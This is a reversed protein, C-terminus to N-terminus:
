KVQSKRRKLMLFAAVVVIFIAIVIGLLVELSLFSSSAEVLAVIGYVKVNDDTFVEGPVPTVVVKLEDQGKSLQFTDWYFSITKTENVDLYISSNVYIALLGYFVKLEATESFSGKNKITVEINVKSGIAIQNAIIDSSEINLIAVDHILNSFEGSEVLFHPPFGEKNYLEVRELIIDSEGIARVKFTLTALTGTGNASDAPEILTSNIFAYGENEFISYTFNSQYVGGSTLFPGELVETLELITSNWTVNALWSYLEYVTATINVKFTKNPTLTSNITLKPDIYVKFIPYEFAGNIATYKTPSILVPSSGGESYLKIKEFNIESFGEKLVTFNIYALIGNGKPRAILSEGMLSCGFYIWGGTYNTGYRTIGIFSTKRTGEQNLFSGETVDTINLIEPDWTINLYWAYMYVSNEIHIEIIFTSNPEATAPDPKFYLRM